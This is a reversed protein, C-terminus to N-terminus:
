APRPARGLEVDFLTRRARRDRRRRGHRGANPHRRGDVRAVIDTRKGDIDTHGDCSGYLYGDAGLEEVLDVVVSLGDGDPPCSSSTRPASASRSRAATARSGVSTARRAAVVPALRVAVGGEALDAPFLNMAPSGIFGAVFVNNPTEYLDRPRASRSCSATRSCRSATVWPSPRPRTTRSTSPPSASAVSCRRSRRVPRSASSPTSTRCRSTWSSCRPSVCSPAAWPSASVSVVRSPRRSATSTSARPRAAQRGRARASAREEKGIGAIKLAFGM